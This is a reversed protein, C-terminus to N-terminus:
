SNLFKLVLLRCSTDCGKKGGEFKKLKGEWGDNASRVMNPVSHLKGSFFYYIQNPAM